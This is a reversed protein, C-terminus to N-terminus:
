FEFFNFWQSPHRKVVREVRSAFMRAYERLSEQRRDRPLDVKEGLLEFEVHYRGGEGRMSFVSFVPAQLLSSLVWPGEPFRTPRGLFPVEIARSSSLKPVRDALLAVIEGRAIVEQLSFILTTDISQLDYVRLFSRASVKELLRRFHRSHGMFMLAHITVNRTDGLARIVELNGVHAGM